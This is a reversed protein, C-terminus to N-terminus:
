GLDLHNEEGEVGDLDEDDIRGDLDCKSLFEARDFDPAARQLTDAVEERISLHADITAAHEFEDETVAKNTPHARALADAILQVLEHERTVLSRLFPLLKAEPMDGHEVNPGHFGGGADRWRQRLADDSIDLQERAQPEALARADV